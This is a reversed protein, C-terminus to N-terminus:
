RATGTGSVVGSDVAADVTAPPEGLKFGPYLRALTADTVRTVVPNVRQLAAEIDPAARVARWLAPLDGGHTKVAEEVEAQWFAPAESAVYNGRGRGFHAV